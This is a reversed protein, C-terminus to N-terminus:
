SPTIVIPVTEPIKVANSKFETFFLIMSGHTSFIAGIPVRIFLGTLSIMSSLERVLNQASVLAMEVQSRTVPKGGRIARFSRKIRKQNSKSKM